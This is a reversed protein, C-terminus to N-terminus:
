ETPRRDAMFTVGLRASRGLVVRVTSRPTSLAEGLYQQADLLEQVGKPSDDPFSGIGVPAGSRLSAEVRRKLRSLDGEQM